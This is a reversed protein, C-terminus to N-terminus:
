LKVDDVWARSPVFLPVKEGKDVPESSHIVDEESDLSTSIASIDQNDSESSEDVAREPRLAFSPSLETVPSPKSSSSIHASGTFRSLRSGLGASLSRDRDRSPASGSAQAAGHEGGGSMRGVGAAVSVCSWLHRGRVNRDAAFEEVVGVGVPPLLNRVLAWGVQLLRAEIM